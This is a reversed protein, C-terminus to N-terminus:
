FHMRLYANIRRDSMYTDYREFVGPLPEQSTKSLTNLLNNAQIGMSVQPNIKYDLSFDLYGAADSWLPVANWVLGNAGNNFCATCTYANGGSTNFSLPNINTSLLQRSHWNYAVRANWPGKSYYLEINYSWKSMGYYPMKKFDTASNAPTTPSQTQNPPVYPGVVSNAFVAPNTSDVYTVSGSVGFGKFPEPLEDFFKRGGMEFGRIDAPKDATANQRYFWQTNVTTPTNTAVDVLPTPQTQYFNTFLDEDRIRKVFLDAYAYVGDKPYWELSMDGSDLMTPKLNAGSQSTMATLYTASQPTAVGNVVKPPGNVTVTSPSINGGAKIDNFNPPTMAESAALRLILKSSIDFKINFSPLARIYSYKKTRLTSTGTTQYQPAATAGPTPNFSAMASAQDLYFASSQGVSFYGRSRMVEDVVRVGFNGSFAPVFGFGNGGFRAEGYIARNEIFSDTEGPNSAFYNKYFQNLTMGGKVVDYSMSALRQWNFNHTIAANPVLVAGPSVKGGFFHKFSYLQYDAPTVVQNSSGSLYPYYNNWSEAIPAWYSGIFDDRERRDASRAGFAVSKIFHDGDFKYDVDINYAGMTGKNDQGNYAFNAFYATKTNALATANFGGLEPIDKTLDFSAHSLNPDSQSIAAYMSFSKGISLVYQIAGRVRLNESPTWVFSQSVDMTSSKGNNYSTNGSLNLGIGGSASAQCYFMGPDTPTAAKGWDGWNINPSSSSTSGYKTRCDATLLSPTQSGFSSQIWSYNPDNPNYDQMLWNNGGWGFILNSAGVAGVYLDGKTMAGASDFTANSPINENSANADYGWSGAHSEGENKYQSYFFTTNLVLDDSPKWQVASYLGTRDRTFDGQSWNYGDPVLAMGSSRNPDNEMRYPGMRADSDQAFYRSFAGDVLIGVEGVKTNFRRTYLASIDPSTKRAQDGYSAGLSLDFEPKKYDFPMRTRLDVSSTGGEIQDARSAKYVDVGGMLEPTVDGWSLASAGNASFAQRGNLTGSNYPLGRVQVGSGEIQFSADGSSAGGVGAFRSLTVGSVRQLVETVSTDPLAGAEDAVISDVITDSNKKIDIATKLAKRRSTVIVVQGDAAKTDGDAKTTDNSTASADQAFAATAVAAVVLVSVGASLFTKLKGTKM